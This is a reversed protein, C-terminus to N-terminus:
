HILISCSTSPKIQLKNYTDKYGEFFNTFKSLDNTQATQDPESIFSTKRLHFEIGFGKVTISEVRAVLEIDCWEGAKLSYEKAVVKADSTASAM